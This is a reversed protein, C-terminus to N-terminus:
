QMPGLVSRPSFGENTTCIASPISVETHGEEGQGEDAWQPKEIYIALDLLAIRSMTGAGIEGHDKAELSASSANTEPVPSFSLTGDVDGSTLTCENSRECNSRERVSLQIYNSAQVISHQEVIVEVYTVAM